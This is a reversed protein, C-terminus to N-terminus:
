RVEELETMDNLVDSSFDPAQHENSFAFGWMFSVSPPQHHLKGEWAFAEGQDIVLYLPMFYIPGM